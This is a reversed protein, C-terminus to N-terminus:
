RGLVRALRASMGCHCVDLALGERTAKEVCDESRHQVYPLLERRAELEGPAHVTCRDDPIRRRGVLGGSATATQITCTCFGTVTAPKARAVELEAVLQLLVDSNEEVFRLLDVVPAPGLGFDFTSWEIPERGSEEDAQRSVRGAVDRAAQALTKLKKLDIAM